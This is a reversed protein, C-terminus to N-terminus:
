RSTASRSSLSAWNRSLTHNANRVWFELGGVRARMGFVGLALFRKRCLTVRRAFFREVLVAIRFRVRVIRSDIAALSTALLSSAKPVSTFFISRAVLLFTSWALAAARVLDRRVFAILAILGAFLM